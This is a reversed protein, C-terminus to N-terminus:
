FASISAFVGTLMSRMVGSSSAACGSRTRVTPAAGGAPVEVMRMTSIGPTSRWGHPPVCTALVPSIPAITTVLISFFLRVLRRTTTLKAHGAHFGPQRAQRHGLKQCQDRQERHARERGSRVRSDRGDGAGIEAQAGGQGMADAHRDAKGADDREA